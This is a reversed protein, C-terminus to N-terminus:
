SVVARSAEAIMLNTLWGLVAGQDTGDSTVLVDRCVDRSKNEMAAKAEALTADSAVVAFSRDLLAKNEDAEVLDKMTLKALDSPSTGALSKTLLFNEVARVHIVIVPKDDADLIPLRNRNNQKMRKRVHEEVHIEALLDIPKVDALRKSSVHVDMKDRPLMKEQVPIGKLREDGSLRIALSEVSRSASEFNKSSFYFALVTGVWSGLLPLIATFALRATDMFLDPKNTSFAVVAAGVLLISTIGILGATSWGLVRMAIEFRNEPSVQGGHAQEKTAM